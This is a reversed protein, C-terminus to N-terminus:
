SGVIELIFTRIGQASATRILWPVFVNKLLTTIYWLPTEFSSRFLNVEQHNKCGMNELILEVRDCAECIDRCIMM